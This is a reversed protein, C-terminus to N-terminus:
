DKVEVIILRNLCFITHMQRLTHLNKFYFKTENDRIFVSINLLFYYSYPICRWDTAGVYQSQLLSPAQNKRLYFDFSFYDQCPLLTLSYCGWCKPCLYAWGSFLLNALGKDYRLIIIISFREYREFGSEEYIQKKSKDIFFTIRKQWSWFFTFGLAVYTRQRDQLAVYM